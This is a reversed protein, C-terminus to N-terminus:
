QAAKELEASLHVAGGTVNLNKSWDSYGKMKVAIQHKGPAIGITSPTNGVFAGDVEIDAGTPTSDIALLIQAAPARAHSAAPAAAPLNKPQVDPEPTPPHWDAPTYRVRYLDCTDNYGVTRLVSSRMGLFELAGDPSFTPYNGIIINWSSAVDHGDVIMSWVWLEGDPYSIHGLGPTSAVYAVHNGDPSFVPFGLDNFEPGAKGDVVVSFGKDSLSTYLM